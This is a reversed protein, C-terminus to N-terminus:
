SSRERRIRVGIRPSRHLPQLAGEVADAILARAEDADGTVRCRVAVRRASASTSAALVGPVDLAAATAARAVDRHRVYVASDADVAVATARRPLLATVVLAVGLLGVAVGAPLLWQQPALVVITEFGKPIWPNGQLWGAAVVADRVGLVGLAVVMLAMFAAIYSSRAAALPVQAAWQRETAVPNPDIAIM